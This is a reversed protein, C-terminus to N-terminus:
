KVKHTFIRYLEELIENELDEKNNDNLVISHKVTREHNSIDIYISNYGTDKTSIAKLM